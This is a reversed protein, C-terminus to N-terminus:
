CSAVAALVAGSIAGIAGWTVGIPGLLFAVGNGTGGLFGGVTGATVAAFCRANGGTKSEMQNLDLKKM